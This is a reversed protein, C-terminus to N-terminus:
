WDLVNAQVGPVDDHQVTALAMAKMELWHARGTDSWEPGRIDWADFHNDGLDRYTGLVGSSGTSGQMTVDGGVAFSFHDDGTAGNGYAMNEIYKVGDSANARFDALNKLGFQLDDQGNNWARNQYYTIFDPNVAGRQYMSPPATNM